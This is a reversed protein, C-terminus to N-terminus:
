NPQRRRARRPACQRWLTQHIRWLPACCVPRVAEPYPSQDHARWRWAVVGWSAVKCDFRFRAYHSFGADPSLPSASVGAWFAGRQRLWRLQLHQQLPAARVAPAARHCGLLREIRWMRRRPPAPRPRSRHCPHIWWRAARGAVETKRQLRVRLLALSRSRLM